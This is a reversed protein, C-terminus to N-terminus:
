DNFRLLAHADLYGLGDCWADGDPAGVVETLDGMHTLALLVPQLVSRATVPLGSDPASLTLSRRCLSLSLLLTTLLVGVGRSMAMVLAADSGPM